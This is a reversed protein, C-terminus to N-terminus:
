IKPGKYGLGLKQSEEESPLAKRIRAHTYESVDPDDNLRHLQELMLKQHDESYNRWSCLPVIMKSAVTDNLADIKKIQDAFFEYGSGDAKHFQEYNAAFAGILSQLHGPNTWDFLDRQTIEEIIQTVNDSNSTSQAVLWKQVTLSNDKVKEYLDDFIADREPATHKSIASISMMWDTMNDANSYLSTIRDLDVQAAPEGRSLYGLAVRKLDRKGVSEYDYSYPASDNVRNYLNELEARYTQAITDRLHKTVKSITSPRAHDLEAEIESITPMALTMAHVAKDDVQQAILTGYTELYSQDVEPLIGTEELEEYLRLMENMALKQAADWRNFGDTDSILQAQLQEKTLGPDYTIPASFNRFLSHYAPESEVNEFVFTQEEGSFTLVRETSGANQEAPGDTSLVLPIEDGNADVLGTVVPMVLPVKEQGDPTPPTHQKLTLTYTKAQADYTGEASVRPRGSQTYWNYFDDSFNMGSVDEMAHVWETLTVAQGRTDDFFNRMGELFKEKGMFTRMMSSIESSKQYTTGDYISEINDVESLQAPHADPGDDEKFQRNRLGSVTKIRDKADSTIDATFMQERNVTLGEKVTLFFWNKITTHNGSNHHFGEHGVIRDINHFESDTATEPTALMASDRFINLTTNEMAGFNFKAIAVVSFVNQDYELGTNDEEWKMFKKIAELAHEAKASDGKETYARITVDRGSKTEFVDEIMDLDGNVTAFLYCPKATPDEFVAYHRGGPIDGYSTKDGNSLLVPRDHKDAEIRVRYKALVDPRDLFPTIRQFGFTECQSTFASDSDYIGFLKSNKAPELHTKIEVEIDDQSPDVPIHLKGSEEDFYYGYEGEALDWGDVTVSTIYPINNGDEDVGNPSNADLIIENAGIGEGTRHYTVKSTVEIDSGQIDLNLDVYDTTFDPDRHDALRIKQSEQAGM